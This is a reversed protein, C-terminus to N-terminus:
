AHDNPEAMESLVLECRTVFLYEHTVARRLEEVESFGALQAYAWLDSPVRRKLRECFYWRFLDTERLGLHALSVSSLGQSELWRGKRLARARLGPLRGNARLEDPLRHLAEGRNSRLLWGLRTEDEMLDIFTDATLDQTTLWTELAASDHLDRERRFRTTTAVLAEDSVAQLNEDAEAEALVRLTAGHITPVWIEPDLRVEDLVGGHSASSEGGTSADWQASSTLEAFFVTHSFRFRPQLREPTDRMLTLMQIADNRKINLRGTPLWRRFADLEADAAGLAAAGEVAAQYTRDPYFLAKAARCILVHTAPAIIAARMAAEATARINVMADSLERFGSESTAHAIAVEDDDELVGNRYSEYVHGVGVMGFTDLEAARLAGMSAAGFVAVGESLAFLIEKHWVAPVHDFVGDIIGIADTGDQLVRYVDGQAVPPLFRADPLWESAEAPSITPGIFM